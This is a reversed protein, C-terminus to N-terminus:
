RDSDRADPDCDDTLLKAFGFDLVKVAGDPRVM